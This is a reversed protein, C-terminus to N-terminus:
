KQFFWTQPDSSIDTHIRQYWPLTLAVEQLESKEPASLHIKSRIGDMRFQKFSFEIM